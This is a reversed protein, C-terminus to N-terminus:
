RAMTTPVGSDPRAPASAPRRVRQGLVVGGLVLLVGVAQVTGFVEHAFAVGPAAGVVPNVLGVLSVAGAPMARLGTFWCVFALGGVVIIVEPATVM